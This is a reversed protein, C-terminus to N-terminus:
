IHILSLDLGYLELIRNRTWDENRPDLDLRRVAYGILADIAAYTEDLANM